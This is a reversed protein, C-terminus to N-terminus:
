RAALTETVEGCKMMRDGFYPNRIAEENSLWYGGNDDNAMPCFAVYVQGESLAQEKVAAIMENSLETFAIRQEELDDTAAVAETHSRLPASLTSENLLTLLTDACARTQVADSSVLADKLSLYNTYIAQFTSDAFVPATHAESTTAKKADSSCSGFTLSLAILISGAFKLNKM